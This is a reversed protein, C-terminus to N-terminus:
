NELIEIEATKVGFNLALTKSPLWIDVHYDSKKSNMRDEVVFVKDGYLEPIRIKTGLPLLNNAVVGDAVSKGSATIFPTDDTEEPCSSYATVVVKITKVIKEITQIDVKTVYSVYANNEFDANTAQPMVVGLLCIGAIVGAGSGLILTKGRLVSIYKLLNKISM